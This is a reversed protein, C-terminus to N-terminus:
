FTIKGKMKRGVERAKKIEKNLLADKDIYIETTTVSSHGLLLQAAEPGLKEHVETATTHRLRNPSWLPVGARRIAACVARRYSHSGYRDGPPRRPNETKRRTRASPLKTKRKRSRDLLIMQMASKPSFLYGEPTAELEMLYPTLIGQCEPTIPIPRFKKKSQTKYEFPIYIWIEESQDIDCPRMLCVEGPRMGTLLQVRIMDAITKHCHRLTQLVIPTDVSPVPPRDPAATKGAELSRVCRLAQHVAANVMENEVGWKFLTRLLSIRDNVTKRALGSSIMEQRLTKLKMPGFDNAPLSGFLAVLPKVILVYREFSGTSRGSTTVYYGKAWLLFKAVLESVTYGTRPIGDIGLIREALIKRYADDAEQSRWKGLYHYRGDLFIRAQGSPKHLHPVPTESKKRPM